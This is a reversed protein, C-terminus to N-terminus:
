AGPSVTFGLRGMRLVTLVRRPSLSQLALRLAEPSSTVITTNAVSLYRRRHRNSTLPETFRIRDSIKGAGELEYICFRRLSGKGTHFAALTYASSREAPPKRTGSTLRSVQAHLFASFLPGRPPHPVSTAIIGNLFEDAHAGSLSILARHPVPALSPTTRILARAAPPIM